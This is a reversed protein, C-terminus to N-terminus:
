RDSRTAVTLLVACDSVAELGHRERPIVAFDGTRLAAEGSAAHLRAEGELVQLTAEGPSEHDHLRHGAAIAIVTQRLDSGRGGMLTVAHRGSSEARALELQATVVDSLNEPDM